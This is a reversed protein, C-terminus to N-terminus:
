GSPRAPYASIRGQPTRFSFNSFRGWERRLQIMCCRGVTTNVELGSAVLVLACAGSIITFLGSVAFLAPASPKGRRGRIIWAKSLFWTGAVLVVGSILRSAGGTAYFGSSESIAVLSEALTPQDAGAAVRGVVAVGTAFATLILSLGAKRVTSDPPRDVTAEAFTSPHSLQPEPM